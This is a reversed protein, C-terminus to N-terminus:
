RERAAALFDVSLTKIAGAGNQIGFSPTLLATTLGPTFTAVMANPEINPSNGYEYGTTAGVFADVKGKADVYFGLEIYTNNAMVLSTPITLNTSVGGVTSRLVFTTGATAKLFFLGDLATLPTTTPAILGAYINTATADSTKMRIKFFAKKGSVGSSATIFNFGAGPVQLFTSDTAGATTTNLLVGGTEQTLANTAAGVDTVLFDTPDLTDFDNSYTHYFFPDLCGAQGWNQWSQNNTLGSPLRYPAPM